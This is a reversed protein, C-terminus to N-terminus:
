DFIDTRKFFYEILAALAAVGLTHGASEKTKAILDWCFFAALIALFLGIADKWASTRFTRLPTKGSDDASEGSEQASQEANVESGQERGM